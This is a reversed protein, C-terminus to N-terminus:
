VLKEGFEELFIKDIIDLENVSGYKDALNHKKVDHLGGDCEIWTCKDWLIGLEEKLRKQTNQIKEKVDDSLFMHVGFHTNYLMKDSLNM